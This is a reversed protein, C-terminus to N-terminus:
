VVACADARAVAGAGAISIDTTCATAVTASVNYASAFTNAAAVIANHSNSVFHAAVCHYSPFHSSTSSLVGCIAARTIHRTCGHWLAASVAASSYLSALRLGRQAAFEATSTSSLAGWIAARTIHHTCGHWLAASVAGRSYLPALRLGRQAAFEACHDQLRRGRASARM